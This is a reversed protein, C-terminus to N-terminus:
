ARPFAELAARALERLRAWDASKRLASPEWDEERRRGAMKSLMEDVANLAGAFAESRGLEDGAERMPVYADEFLLGLDDVDLDRRELLDIQEEAPAALLQLAERMTDLMWATM